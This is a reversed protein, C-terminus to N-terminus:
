VCTWYGFYKVFLKLPLVASMKKAPSAASSSFSGTLNKKKLILFFSSFTLSVGSADIYNQDTTQRECAAATIEGAAMTTLMLNRARRRRREGGRVCVCVRRGWGVWGLLKSNETINSVALSPVPAEELVIFDDAAPPPQRSNRSTAMHKHEGKHKAAM